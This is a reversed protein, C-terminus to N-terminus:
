WEGIERGTSYPAESRLSSGMSGLNSTTPMSSVQSSIESSILTGAHIDPLPNELSSRQIELNMFFFYFQYGMLQQENYNPTEENEMPNVQGSANM